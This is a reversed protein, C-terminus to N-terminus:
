WWIKRRFIVAFIACVGRIARLAREVQERVRRGLREDLVPWNMFDLRRAWCVRWFVAAVVTRGESEAESELLWVGRVKEVVEVM